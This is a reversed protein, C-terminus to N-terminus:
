FQIAEKKISGVFYTVSLKCKFGQDLEVPTNFINM